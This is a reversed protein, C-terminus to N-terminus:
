RIALNGPLLAAVGDRLVRDLVLVDTLKDVDIGPLALEPTIASTHGDEMDEILLEFFSKQVPWRHITPTGEIHGLEAAKAIAVDLGGLEDVLGRELAQQGTWVRGQAVAHVADRDMKRGEAVRGLFTEYFDNLFERFVARGTDSFPASLSFLKAEQGREWTTERL